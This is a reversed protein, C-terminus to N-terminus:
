ASAGLARARAQRATREVAAATPDYGADFEPWGAAHRVILRALAEIHAPADNLAPIYRYHEGGASLFAERNELAIEELTELCDAAFGPCVVDARKVGARAWAALLESTYPRLWEARGFRSQFAVAWRDEHLGLREAVLRATKHCECHYPDGALLNRKPLGHFSFLLREGPWEARAARISAALADLYAPDDHYHTILRLDPLWRWRRLEAAIADFTSAVTAASYQPYLPLVLLRRAGTDRLGALASAISPNGYRMGLAVQVPGLCQQRLAAAVAATQRRGIALLPSGDETWITRYKRASRAPRIRLIIGHLILWWLPRPLEVVRPDWLFEALYRRLAAPTPADPTGLNTLLVGTCTPQDHSFGTSPISQKM